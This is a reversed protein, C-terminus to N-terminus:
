VSGGLFTCGYNSFVLKVRPKYCMLERDLPSCCEVVYDVIYGVTMRFSLVYYIYPSLLGFLYTLSFDSPLVKFGESIWTHKWMQSGHLSVTVM